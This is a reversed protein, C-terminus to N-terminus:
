DDETVRESLVAVLRDADPAGVVFSRGETAHVKAAPGAAFVFAAEGAGLSRYGFGGFDMPAARTLEASTIEALPLRKRFWPGVALTLAHDDVTIRGRAGVLPLTMLVAATPILKAWLPGEQLWAFVAGVLCAVFLVFLLRDLWRPPAVTTEYHM